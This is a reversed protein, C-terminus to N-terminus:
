DRSRSAAALAPFPKENIPLRSIVATAPFSLFWLFMAGLPWVFAIPVSLVFVSPTVLLNRRVLRYLGADVSTDLLDHRRAHVWLWLQLLTLGAVVLAYLIVSSTQLDFEALVSTPFPTIAVLSLLALNIWMLGGDFRIIVRFKRHHSMWNVGLIAFTLLYAFLEPWLAFLAATLDSSKTDAPVRIELALLTLAIAFVADSFFAIRETGTGRGLVRAYRSRVDSM